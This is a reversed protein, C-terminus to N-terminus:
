RRGAAVGRSKTRSLRATVRPCPSTAGPDAPKQPPPHRPHRAAAALDRPPRQQPTALGPHEKQHPFFHLSFLRLSMKMAALVASHDPPVAVHQKSIHLRVFAWLTSLAFPKM